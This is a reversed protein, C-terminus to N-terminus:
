HDDADRKGWKISRVVGRHWSQVRRRAMISMTSKDTGLFAIGNSQVVADILIPYWPGYLEATRSHDIVFWGKKKVDEWWTSNVEDSTMVVHKVRMGKRRWLEQQVEEVRREIVDLSSFCEDIPRHFDRCLFDFDGHRVHISIYPPTLEESHELNLARRLYQSGLQELEPTWHMHQGVFKWAPAYDYEHEFPFHASIYYLYDYCVLHEDPPLRVHNRPSEHVVPNVLSELRTEPEALSALAFLSSHRDHKFNPITTVWDPTRTYSVDLNLLPLLRSKRPLGTEPKSTGWIDWCGLEDVETSNRDKVEHWELMPLNVLKSLRPLDFVKSFDIPAVHYGLHSPIFYGIIPIRQTVVGLYILNMYTIVDNSWGADLWSTIYKQDPKLNDRFKATPPGVVASLRDNEVAALYTTQPHLVLQSAYPRTNYM